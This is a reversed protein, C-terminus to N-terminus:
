RGFLSQCIRDVIRAWTLLLTAAIAMFILGVALMHPLGLNWGDRTMWFGVVGFVIVWILWRLPRVQVFMM